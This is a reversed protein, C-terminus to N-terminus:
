ARGGELIKKRFKPDVAMCILDCALSILMILTAFILICCLCLYASRNAVANVLMVGLGPISFFNEAIMGGCLIGIAINQFSSM